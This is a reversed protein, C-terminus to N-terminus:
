LRRDAPPHAARDIREALEFDLGTLGKVDHTTIRVKVKGYSLEITPHHNLIEAHVAVKAAFGLGAIFTHFPFVRSLETQRVNLTWGTLRKSRKRIEGPSLKKSTSPM